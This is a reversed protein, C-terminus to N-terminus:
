NNPRNSRPIAGLRIKSLLIKRLRLRAENEIQRVRERSVNMRTSIEKLTRPPRGHLGLRWALVEQHRPSLKKYADAVLAGTEEHLMREEVSLSDDALFELMSTAGDDGVPRDLSAQAMQQGRFRDIQTVSLDLQDALEERSPARGLRAKLETEAHKLESIKKRRYTPVRVVLSHDAIAKLMAKRIWWIAYTIFRTGKSGDFRRTAEILGLNGENLLDEFPIGLSRYETAVKVVFSLNSQILRAGADRDGQELKRVLQQEDAQELLPFSKIERLYRSLAM